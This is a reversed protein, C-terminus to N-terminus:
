STQEKGTFQHDGNGLIPNGINPFSLALRLSRCAWFDRRDAAHSLRLVGLFVRAEQFAQSFSPLLCPKAL